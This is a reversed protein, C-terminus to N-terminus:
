QEGLVGCPKGGFLLEWPKVVCPRIVPWPKWCPRHLPTSMQLVLVAAHMCVAGVPRGKGPDQDKPLCCAAAHLKSWFARQMVPPLLWVLPEKSGPPQGVRLQFAGVGAQTVWGSDSNEGTPEFRDEVM